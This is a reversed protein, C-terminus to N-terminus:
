EMQQGVPKSTQSLREQGSRDRASGHVRELGLAHQRPGCRLNPAPCAHRQPAAMGGGYVQNHRGARGRSLRQRVVRDVRRCVCTALEGETLIGRCRNTRMLREALFGAAGCPMPQVLVPALLYQRGEAEPALPVHPSACGRAGHWRCMGRASPSAAPCSTHSGFRQGDRAPEGAAVGRAPQSPEGWM